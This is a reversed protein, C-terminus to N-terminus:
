PSGRRPVLADTPFLEAYRDFVGMCLDRKTCEACEAPHARKRGPTWTYIDDLVVKGPAATWEVTVRPDWHLDNSLTEHEGLICMPVGFFRMVADGAAAPLQPLVVALQELPVALQEYADLGRGEPTVNSIVILTAGLRRALAVTDVLTGVNDRTVVVNAYTQITPHAQRVVDFARTVEDFSGPRRTLGDHTGEDPGHLSFMVEDLLPAAEAAFRERCLMVGNTGVSTRMRLKRALALVAVLRPHITPEGGTLHLSTVGRAAHTRLVTAIRGWSVAFRRFQGM